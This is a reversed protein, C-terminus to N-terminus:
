DKDKAPIKGDRMAKAGEIVDAKCANFYTHHERTNYMDTAYEEAWKEIDEDTPQPQLLEQLAKIFGKKDKIKYEGYDENMLICFKNFVENISMRPKDEQLSVLESAFGIDNLKVRLEKRWWYAGEGEKREPFDSYGLLWKFIEITEKTLTKM